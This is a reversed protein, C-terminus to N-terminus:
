FHIFILINFSFSIGRARESNGASQGPQNLWFTLLFPKDRPYRFRSVLLTSQTGEPSGRFVRQFGEPPKPFGRPIRESDKQFKKKRQELSKPQFFFQYFFTLCVLLNSESWAGCTIAKSHKGLVPVKRSTRHNYLMLNGRYSGIALNPGTKSWILVNLPDRISSDM